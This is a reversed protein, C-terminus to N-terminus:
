HHENTLKRKELEELTVFERTCISVLEGDIEKTEYKFVPYFNVPPLSESM